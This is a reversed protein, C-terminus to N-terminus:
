QPKNEFHLSLWKDKVVENVKQLSLGSAKRLIETFDGPLFGSLVLEGGAHLSGAFSTLNELIINKNINTLIIDFKKTENFTEKQRVHIRRCKNLSINELANKISMEDNDIALVKAAGMKEALIALIGTGTGYDCVSKNKFVMMRMHEIMMQTTAHHGTGFSMKPIIIIEHETEKGTTLPDHFPARILCFNEIIVPQFNSEWILNWNEAKVKRQKFNLGQTHIIEDLNSKTYNKESIFAELRTEDEEFGEFGAESLFAILIDKQEPHLNSFSIQIYNTM